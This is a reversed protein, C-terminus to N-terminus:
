HSPQDLIVAKTTTSAAM